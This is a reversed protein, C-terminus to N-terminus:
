DELVIDLLLEIAYKKFNEVRVDLYERADQGRLGKKLCILTYIGSCLSQLMGCLVASLIPIANISGHKETLECLYQQLTADLSKKVNRKIAESDEHQIIGLHSTNPIRNM